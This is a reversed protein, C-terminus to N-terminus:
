NQHRFVELIVKQKKIKSIQRYIFLSSGSMTCLGGQLIMWNINEKTPFFLDEM